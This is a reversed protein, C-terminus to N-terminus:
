RLKDLNLNVKQILAIARDSQLNIIALRKHQSEIKRELEMKKLMRERHKDKVYRITKQQMHYKLHEWTLGDLPDDQSKEMDYKHLVENLQTVYDNDYLLANNFKWFGKGRLFTSISIELQVFSHDSLYGPIIDCAQIYGLTALPTLFYDIRSMALPKRRTYTFQKSDQHAYCWINIWDYTELFDNIKETAKTENSDTYSRVSLFRDLKSSM